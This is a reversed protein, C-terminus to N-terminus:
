AVSRAAAAHVNNFKAKGNAASSWDDKQDGGDDHTITVRHKAKTIREIQKLVSDAEDLRDEALLIRGQPVIRTRLPENSPEEKSSAESNNRKMITVAPHMDPAVHQQKPMLSSWNVPAIFDDM